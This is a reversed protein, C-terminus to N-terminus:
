GAALPVLGMVWEIFMEEGLVGAALDEITRVVEDEARDGDPWHFEGGNREIFELMSIYAARKNGDPLPHNRCLRSCLIAGKVALGTYVETGGFAAQPAGLASEAQSVLREMRALDEAATGILAEAILLYDALVVYRLPGIGEGSTV